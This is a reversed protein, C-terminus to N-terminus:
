SSQLLLTLARQVVQTITLKHESAYQMLQEHCEDSLRIGVIKSKTEEQKRRGVKAM